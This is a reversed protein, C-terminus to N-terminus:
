QQARQEDDYVRDRERLRGDHDVFMGARCHGADPDLCAQKEIAGNGGPEERTFPIGDRVKRGSVVPRKILANIWAPHDRRSDAVSDDLRVSRLRGDALSTGDRLILRVGRVLEAHILDCAEEGVGPERGRGIGARITNRLFRDPEYDADVYVIRRRLSAYQQEGPVRTSRKRLRATGRENEGSSGILCRQECIVDCREDSFAAHHKGIISRQADLHVERAALM